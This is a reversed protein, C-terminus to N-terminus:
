GAPAEETDIHTIWTAAADRTSEHAQARLFSSRARELQAGNYYAIGLLLAANGPDDLGGKAIGKELLEAAEDWSERQMNVQGLRVFLNGDAALQAAKRLPPLSLEYERAAIWSNALLEYSDSDAEIQGDNLGQELVRAARYPLENFLYSRALRRLEKDDTLYGQAYAVQQAALSRRYDENAGYILSLQVWYQKKPFRIVLEELVPAADSYREAQSYLAALLRLWSEKPNPRAEVALKTKEIATDFEGLQYYAIGMLYFGLPDPDEVYLLWSDLWDIMLQWQQLSAYLQAINFRVRAEDRIPLMQEALFQEFYGIAEESQQAGYAVHALMRYVLAQEYPNLRNPSLKKLLRTAEDPDGEDVKKAAASLYRSVRTSVPHRAAKQQRDKKLADLNIVEPPPEPPGASAVFPAALVLALLAPLAFRLPASAPHMM